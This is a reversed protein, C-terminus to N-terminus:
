KGNKAGGFVYQWISDDSPSDFSVCEIDLPLTRSKARFYAEQKVFIARKGTSLIKKDKVVAGYDAIRFVHDMWECYLAEINAEKNSTLRPGARLFDDGGPNPVRNAAEQFIMIINKGRRVLADCDQLIIKMTDYLHRYGKNYGYQIINKMTVGKDNPINELMYPIAWEELITGTDIVVTEFSEFVSPQSLVNHVDLFTEIGPIRTLLEGTKPHRLKRGGDDLGLFVPNPALSALTTKGMGTDAYIGIKEGEGQDSWKEAAFTKSPMPPASNVAALGATIKTSLTKTMDIRKPPM